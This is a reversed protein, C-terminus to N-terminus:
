VDTMSEKETAADEPSYPADAVARKTTLIADGV